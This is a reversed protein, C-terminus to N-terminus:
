KLRWSSSVAIAGTSTCDLVFERDAASGLRTLLYRFAHEYNETQNKNYDWPLTVSDNNSFSAKIRAPRHTTPGLYKAILMM